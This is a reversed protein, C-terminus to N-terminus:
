DEIELRMFCLFLTFIDNTAIVGTGYFFLYKSNKLKAHVILRFLKAQQAFRLLIEQQNQPFLCVLFSEM